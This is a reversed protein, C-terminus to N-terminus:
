IIRNARMMCYFYSFIVVAAVALFVALFIKLFSFACGQVRSDTATSNGWTMPGYGCHPCGQLRYLSVMYQHCVPCNYNNNGLWLPSFLGALLLWWLSRRKLKIVLGGIVLMSIGSIIILTSGSFFANFFADWYYSGRTVLSFGKLTLLFILPIMSLAYVWNLHCIMWKQMPNQPQYSAQHYIPRQTTQQQGSLSNGCNWCFKHGANNQAGCRNCQFTQQM